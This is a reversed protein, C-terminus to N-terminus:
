CHSRAQVLHRLLTHRWPQVPNWDTFPVGSRACFARLRDTMAARETAALRNAEPGALAQLRAGTEVDRLEVEGALPLEAQAVDSLQMLHLATCRQTIAALDRRMEDAALFDSLAFVSGAGHLYRACAGLESRQATPVPQLRALLAAILAYHHQGRGRPCQALVQTGFVLLGVRHGSHLLAYSLAAMMAVAAQWCATGPSAMSSSADLLLTWDSVTEAEFRRLIPRRQRATQRWDIHRVEDGPVYDRHDFHQLGSGARRTVARSGPTRPQREILLHAAARAFTLLEPEGPLVTASLPQTAM